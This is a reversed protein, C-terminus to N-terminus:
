PPTMINLTMQQYRGKLSEEIEGIRSEREHIMGSNRITNGLAGAVATLGAMFCTTGATEPCLLLLGIILADAGGITASAEWQRDRIEQFLTERQEILEVFSGGDSGSFQPNDASVVMFHTGTGDTVWVLRLGPYGMMEGWGLYDDGHVQILAPRCETGGMVGGLGVCTFQDGEHYVLPGISMGQPTPTMPLDTVHPTFDIQAYATSRPALLGTALPVVLLSVLIIIILGVRAQAKTRPM